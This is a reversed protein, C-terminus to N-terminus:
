LLCPRSWRGSFRLAGAKRLATIVRPLDRELETRFRSVFLHPLWIQGVRNREWREWAASPDTPAARDRELVTVAHGDDALLMATTLAVIGGGAIVVSAM